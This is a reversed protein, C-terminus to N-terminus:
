QPELRRTKKAISSAYQLLSVGSNKAEASLIRRAIHIQQLAPDSPFEREVEEVITKFETDSLLRKYM